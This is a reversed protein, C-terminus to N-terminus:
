AQGIVWSRKKHGVLPKGWSNGKDTIIDSWKRSISRRRRTLRGIMAIGALSDDQVHAIFGSRNSRGENRRWSEFPFCRCMASCSRISYKTRRQERTGPLYAPAHTMDYKTKMRGADNYACARVLLDKEIKHCIASQVNSFARAAM